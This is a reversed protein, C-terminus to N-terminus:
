YLKHQEPIHFFCVGSYCLNCWLLALALLVIDTPSSKGIPTSWSCLLNKPNFNSLQWPLARRPICSQKLNKWTRNMKAAAGGVIGFNPNKFPLFIVTAEFSEKSQM